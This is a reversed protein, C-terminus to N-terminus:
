RPSPALGAGTIRYIGEVHALYRAPQHEGFSVLLLKVASPHPDPRLYFYLPLGDTGRHLDTARAPERYGQQRVIAAFPGPGLLLHLRHLPNDVLEAVTFAYDPRALPVAIPRAPDPEGGDYAALRRTTDLAQVTIM